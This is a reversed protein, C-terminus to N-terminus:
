FFLPILFPVLLSMVVGHYMAPIMASTGFHTTIIPMTVDMTTAGGVCISAYFFRRGLKSFIPILFFTFSERFINSLFSISGLLPYGLDSIMIGSLSYWGFGSSLGLSEKLTYDTLISLFSAGIYTGIITWLPLLLLLPSNFIEKFKLNSNIIGLGSFFLLIYLLYSIISTDYWEFFPTFLKSLIGIFVVSVLILPEKVINYFRIFWHRKIQIKAEEKLETKYLANIDSSTISINGKKVFGEDDILKKKKFDFIYSALLAIFITGCVSFLTVLLASYGITNLENLINDIAGTNVGMFFLLIYLTINLLYQSSKMIKKSFFKGALLGLILALILKSLYLITEM